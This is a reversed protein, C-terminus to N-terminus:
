SNVILSVADPIVTIAAKSDNVINEAMEIAEDLSSAYLMHLAEVMDKPASTVWIIRHKLLIQTTLQIVWQDPLTEERGRQMIEQMMAELSDTEAFSKLFAEGGHGDRCENVAIIVGGKACCLSATMISKTSQYLNQDLPYGGNSTIVIPAPIAKVGAHQQVFACGDLHAQEMDGAFAAVVEKNSGLVVNLIFALNAKRAAYLMDCHFPNGELNGPRACPHATFESNHNAMVTKFSAIGPLISKRGGSFGAFQHPEIFGDAILLDAEIALRNLILEGGSPLIGLSVLGSDDEPDHNILRENAAVAAGFKHIMEGQTTPRHSGVAILITIDADPSGIRIEELMPPLTLHSPVPRTHDSTVIVVNKKGVALERLRPSGIPNQLAEQILLAEEKYEFSSTTKLISVQRNDAINCTLHGEGYPLTIVKM